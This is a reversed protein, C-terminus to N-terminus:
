QMLEHVLSRLEAIEALQADQEAIRALLDEIRADQNLTRKHLEEIYIHAVELEHIVGGLKETLNVPEHPATPGVAPLHKNEWMLAAREDIPPVTFVEPDFTADCPSPSCTPGQSVIGSPGITLWRNAGSDTQGTFLIENDKFIIQSKVNDANDVALFRRNESDTRFRVQVAGGNSSEFYIKQTGGGQTHLKGEPQSTGLGISGDDKIALSGGPSGSEISVPVSIDGGDDHRLAFSLRASEFTWKQNVGFDNSELRLKATSPDVVHLTTDPLATNVGIDGNASVFLANDPAGAMITVPTTAATMDEIAFRELGNAVQENITIRWDNTPADANTSTDELLISTNSGMLRLAEVDFTQDIACGNGICTKGDLVSSDTVFLDANGGIGGSIEVGNTFSDQAFSPLALALALIAGSTTTRFM